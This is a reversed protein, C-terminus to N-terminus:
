PGPLRPGQPTFVADNLNKVPRKGLVNLFRMRKLEKGEEVVLQFARTELQLAHSSRAAASLQGLAQLCEQQDSEDCNKLFAQLQRFRHQFPLMIDSDADSIRCLPTASLAIFKGWDVDTSSQVDFPTKGDGIDPLKQSLELALPLSPQGQSYKSLNDPMQTYVASASVKMGISQVNPVETAEPTTGASYKVVDPATSSNKLRAVAYSSLGNKTHQLPSTQSAVCEERSIRGYEGYGMGKSRVPSKLQKCHDEELVGEGLTCEHLHVGHQKTNAETAEVVCSSAKLKESAQRKKRTPRRSKRSDLPCDELLVTHGSQEQGNGSVSSSRYRKASKGSDHEEVQGDKDNVTQKVQSVFAMACPLMDKVCEVPMRNVLPMDQKVPLCSTKLAGNATCSQLEQTHVKFPADKSTSVYKVESKAEQSVCIVPKESSVSSSLTSLKAPDSLQESGTERLECVCKSYEMSTLFSSLDSGANGSKLHQVPMCDHLSSAIQFGVKPQALQELYAEAPSVKCVGGQPLPHRSSQGLSLASDAKPTVQMQKEHMPLSLTLFSEKHLEPGVKQVELQIQDRSSTSTPFQVLRTSPQQMYVQQSTPMGVVFHGQSSHNRQRQPTGIGLSLFPLSHSSEPMETGQPKQGSLPQMATCLVPDPMIDVRATGETYVGQVQDVSMWHSLAMADRSKSVLESITADKGPREEDAKVSYSDPAKTNPSPKEPLWSSCVRLKSADHTAEFRGVVRQHNSDQEVASTM